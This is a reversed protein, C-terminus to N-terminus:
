RYDHYYRYYYYYYDKEVDFNNIAVGLINANVNNLRSIAEQVMERVPGYTQVILIVADVITALVVADTVTIVPPSDLLIIDFKEKAKGLLNRMSSGLLESPNPPLDGSTLLSLNPIQSARVSAELPLEGKLATTLGPSKDLKFIRHLAPQRLDSDILLVKQDSQAITIGLNILTSTKGEGSVASTILLSKKFRGQFSFIINTRLTRYAEAMISKPSQHAILSLGREEEEQSSISNGKDIESAM